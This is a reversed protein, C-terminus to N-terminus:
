TWSTARERSFKQNCFPNIESVMCAVTSTGTVSGRRSRKEAERHVFATDEAREAVRVHTGPLLLSLHLLEVDSIKRKGRRFLLEVLPERLDTYCRRGDIKDAVTERALRTTEGEDLDRIVFVCVASDVGQVALIKASSVKYHIFRTRLRLTAAAASATPITAPAAAM